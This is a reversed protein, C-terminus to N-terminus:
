IAQSRRWLKSVGQPLLKTTLFTYLFLGEWIWSLSSKLVTWQRFIRCISSPSLMYMRKPLDSRDSEVYRSGLKDERTHPPSTDSHPLGYLDSVFRPYGAYTWSKSPGRTQPHLVCGNYQGDGCTFSFGASDSELLISNGTIAPGCSNTIRGFGMSVPIRSGVDIRTPGSTM